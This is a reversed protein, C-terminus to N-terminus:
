GIFRRHELNVNDVKFNNNNPAVEVVKEGIHFLVSKVSNESTPATKCGCLSVGYFAVFVLSFLRKSHYNM